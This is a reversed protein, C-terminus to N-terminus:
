RNALGPHCGTHQSAHWCGGDEACTLDSLAIRTHPLVHDLAEFWAALEAEPINVQMNGDGQRPVPWGAALNAGTAGLRGAAYFFTAAACCRQAVASVAFGIFLVNLPVPMHLGDVTQLGLYAALNAAQLYEQMNCPLWAERDFWPHAPPLRHMHLAVGVQKDGFSRGHLSRVRVLDDHDWSLADEGQLKPHRHNAPAARDRDM